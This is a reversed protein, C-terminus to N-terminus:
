GADLRTAHRIAWATAEARNRVDIKRYLNLIHREVTRVSLYLDSAIEKNSRGAAILSLVERERASLAVLAGTVELTLPSDDRDGLDHAVVREVPLARGAAWHAAYTDEGLMARAATTAQEVGARAAPLLDADSQERIRAAAGLLRAARAAHRRACATEALAELCAAIDIWYGLARSHELSEGFLAEARDFEGADAALRGQTKLAKASGWLDGIARSFALGEDAYARAAVPDARALALDSLDGLIWGIFPTSGSDRAVALSEQWLALAEDYAGRAFSVHGLRNLSAIVGTVHDTARALSLCEACIDAARAHDGKWAYTSCLSNLAHFVTEQQGLARGLRLAETGYAIAEPMDSQLGKIHSLMALAWARSAESAAGCRADALLRELWENAEGARGAIVWFGQLDAALRLAGDLDHAHGWALAARINDIELAVRRVADHPTPLMLRPGADAGLAFVCTAHRALAAATEGHSELQELGFDRITELMSFRIAGAREREQALQVDVLDGLADLIAGDLADGAVAEAAELTWGGAFVALQRFLTQREPALLNYSWSITARLTRQRPPLDRAGGTLLALPHELRALLDRPALLRVRAAALEIALPLGDLRRCISAVAPANEPTLAFEPQAERAREVFLAVAPSNDGTADTPTVSLPQVPYDREGRLKLRARSTALVSLSAARELLWAIDSAAPMVREFNDLVLLARKHRLQEALNALLPRGGTQRVGVSQALTAVVMAPDTLSSLDVFFVGDPYLPRVAEAVALALRTTGVGGPGTLTLLRGSDLFRRAQAIDRDRGILSSV